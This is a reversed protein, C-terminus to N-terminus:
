FYSAEVLFGVTFKAHQLVHTFNVTSVADKATHIYPSSDNISDECVYAAPFGAATASSHDSCSYGCTDTLVKLQTYAPVLTKLFATLPLSVDDEFIAIVNNPSYGTMDQNMVALVDIDRTRYNNMVDRSGLLGGEEGSYFHFELSPGSPKFKTAALVRLAELIVVVGSANDDAGPARGSITDGISDYHASVIVVSNKTTGPIKSIISPMSYSHNFKQVTIAPNAKAVDVVTNYLWTAAKPAYSSKYYRTYFNSLGNTWTQLNKQSLASILPAAQSQHKPGSPFVPEITASSLRLNQLQSNVKEAALAELNPTETIDVFNINKSIFRTFKEEETIWIGPDTPSTKCLRLEKTPGSPSPIPPLAFVSTVGLLITVLPASVM